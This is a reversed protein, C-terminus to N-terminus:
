ESDLVAHIMEVIDQPKLNGGCGLYQVRALEIKKLLKKLLKETLANEGKLRFVVMGM